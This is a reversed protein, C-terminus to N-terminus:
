HCSSTVHYNSMVLSCMAVHVFKMLVIISLLSNYSDGFESLTTPLLILMYLMSKCPPRPIPCPGRFIKFIVDESISDSPLKELIKFVVYIIAAHTKRCGPQSAPLCFLALNLLHLM